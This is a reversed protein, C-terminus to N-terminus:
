SPRARVIKPDFLRRWACWGAEPPASPPPSRAMTMDVALSARAEAASAHGTLAALNFCKHAEVVDVPKGGTGTSYSIGLDFLIDADRACPVPGSAPMAAALTTM